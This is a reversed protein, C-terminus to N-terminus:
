WASSFWSRSGAKEVGSNWARDKNRVAYPLTMHRFPVRDDRDGPRRAGSRGGDGVRELVDEAALLDLRLDDLAVGEVTEVPELHALEDLFRVLPAVALDAMETRIGVEELLQLRQKAGVPLRALSLQALVQVVLLLGLGVLLLGAGEGGPRVDLRAGVQEEVLSQVAADDVLADPDVDGAVGVQEDAHHRDDVELPDLLQVAVLAVAAVRVLRHDVRDQAAHRVIHVVDTRLERLRM